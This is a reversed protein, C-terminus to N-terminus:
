FDFIAVVKEFIAALKASKAMVKSLNMRHSHYQRRDTNAFASAM